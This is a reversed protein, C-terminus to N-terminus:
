TADGFDWVYNLSGSTIASNNALALNIQECLDSVSFDAVPTHNVAVLKSVSNICNANSTAVLSVDYTSISPFTNSPNTSTSTQGDDFDWQYTMGGVPVSSLNTFSTASGLCGPTFSFDVLPIPFATVNKVLTSVCNFDSTATLTVPYVNYSGYLYGPNTDTSVDSTTSPDGFDWQYTVSGSAITTGNTFDMTQGGCSVSNTFAVAPSPRSILDVAGLGTCGKADTVTVSYMGPTSVSISQLTEGTSWLFNAGPNGADLNLPIGSCLNQTPPGLDVTPPATCDKDSVTIRFDSSLSLGTLEVYNSTTNVSGGINVWSAGADYSIYIRLDPETIGNLEPTLYNFRIDNVIDGGNLNVDYYRSISGDGATIQVAHGRRIEVGALISGEFQFGLGGPNDNILPSMNLIHAITGTSASYVRRIDNEGVLTGSQGLDIELAQLDISGSILEISPNLVSSNTTISLNRNLSLGGTRNVRLRNLIIPSAGDFSGGSAGFLEFFSGSNDEDIINLAGNNILNGSLYLPSNLWIQPDNISAPSTPANMYDGNVYVPTGTFYITVGTNTITVQAHVSGCVLFSLLLLVSNYRSAASRHKLNRSIM